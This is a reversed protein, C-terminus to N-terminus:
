RDTKVGSGMRAVESGQSMREARPIYRGCAPPVNVMQKAFVAFSPTGARLTSWYSNPSLLPQRQVIIQNTLIKVGCLLNNEPRLITKEPDKPSRQRDAQWNFDCGYRVEDEYTLQLLGQSRIMHGTVGDVKAVEPETHRVNTVPNLGAEAGALAQFFYAWFARKDVESMQYFRPCFRRVDRPVHNSLLEPPLAREVVTDWSPNWTEGGLEERKEQIPTPPAVKTVPQIPKPAPANQPPPQAKTCATLWTCAAIAVAGLMTRFTSRM